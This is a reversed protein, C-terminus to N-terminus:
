QKCVERSDFSVLHALPHLAQCAAEAEDWTVEQPEFHYCRTLNGIKTFAVPCETETYFVSLFTVTGEQSSSLTRPGTPSIDQFYFKVLKLRKMM